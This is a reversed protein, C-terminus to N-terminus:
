RAESEAVFGIAGRLQNVVAAMKSMDGLVRQEKAASDRQKLSSILESTALASDLSFENVAINDRGLFCSHRRAIKDNPRLQSRELKNTGAVVEYGPTVGLGLHKDGSFSGRDLSLKVRKGTGTLNMLRLVGDNYGVIVAADAALAIVGLPSDIYAMTTPRRVSVFITGNKLDVVNSRPRGFDSHEQSLVFIGEAKGDAQEKLRIENPKLAFLGARAAEGGSAGTLPM